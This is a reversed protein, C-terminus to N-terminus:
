ENMLKALTEGILDFAIRNDCKECDCPGAVLLSVKQLTDICMYLAEKDTM